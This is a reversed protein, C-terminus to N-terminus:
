SRSLARRRQLEREIEADILDETVGGAAMFVSGAHLALAFGWAGVPWVFWLAKPSYALNIAVLGASILLFLTLHWFLGLKSKVRKVARGRVERRIRAQENETSDTSEMSKM